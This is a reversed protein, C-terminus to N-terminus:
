SDCEPNSIPRFQMIKTAGRPQSQLEAIFRDRELIMAELEQVKHSLLYNQRAWANIETLADKLAERYERTRAQSEALEGQKAQLRKKQSNENIKRIETLIPEHYRYLTSRDIGAEAAVSATTIPTGKKVRRPNGNRLRALALELDKRTQRQSAEKHTRLAGPNGGLKSM